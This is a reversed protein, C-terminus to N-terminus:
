RRGLTGSEHLFSNLTPTHGPFSFKNSSHGCSPKNSFMLVHAAAAWNLVNRQACSALAHFFCNLSHYNECCLSGWRRSWRDYAKGRSVNLCSERKWKALGVELTAERSVGHFLKCLKIPFGVFHFNGRAHSFYKRDQFSRKNCKQYWDIIWSTRISFARTVLWISDCCPTDSPNSFHLPNLHSFRITKSRFFRSTKWTRFYNFFIEVKGWSFRFIRWRDTLQLIEVPFLFGLYGEDDSYAPSVNM